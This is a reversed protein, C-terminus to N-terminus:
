KKARNQLPAVLRFDIQLNGRGVGLAIDPKNDGHYDSGGSELLGFEKAIAKALATEEATFKSYITEMGDLGAEVAEPLFERLGPEDLNLFPHALVATAGISKIFRITECADLRFPPKYFGREESLCTKFAEKVSSVYGLKVMEAAIVARNVYDGAEAKIKDYDLIYGAKKLRDVLDRNSQEKASLWHNIRAMISEYHVEKVFLALIHLEKGKHETTFEIGPIAEISKGEAAALFEPLGAV